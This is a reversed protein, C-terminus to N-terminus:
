TARGPRGGADPVPRSEQRLEELSYEIRGLIEAVLLNYRIQPTLFPKGLRAMIRKVTKLRGTRVREWYDGHERLLQVLAAVSGVASLRSSEVDWARLEEELDVAAKETAALHGRDPTDM